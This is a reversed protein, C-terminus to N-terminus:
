WLMAHEFIKQLLSQRDVHRRSCVVKNLKLLLQFNGMMKSFFEDLM